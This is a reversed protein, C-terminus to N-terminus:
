ISICSEVFDMFSTHNKWLDINLIMELRQLEEEVVSYYFEDFFLICDFVKFDRDSVKTKISELFSEFEEEIVYPFYNLISEIMDDYESNDEM